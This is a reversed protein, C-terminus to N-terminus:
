AKRGTLLVVYRDPQLLGSPVSSLAILGATSAPLVSLGEQEKIKKAFSMMSKDTANAGWGNTSYMASLALDGDISHWNVLPENVQTERIKEPPLDECTKLGKIYAHIVPNMGSSSGGIIRPIRSTKGRRYLSLFGKYVGALTTANSVPIAIAAPADRLSDYIEFAIEGYAKLQIATNAGGPNADYYEHQQALSSSAEVAREYDVDVRVIEAGNREMEQIRGSHFKAPVYIICRLGATNAAFAMAAGYNGCTAVTITDYGRRIADMAQAFAIRDKQTGTPNGGEFKFFLQRIGIEKEINRARHLSTDGVESDFIDEFAELRDEVSRSADAAIKHAPELEPDLRETSPTAGDLLPRIESSPTIQDKTESRQSSKAAELNQEATEERM